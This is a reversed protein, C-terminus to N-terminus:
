KASRNKFKKWVRLPLLVIRIIKGIGKWQLVSWYPAFIWAPNSKPFLAQLLPLSRQCEPFDSPSKYGTVIQTLKAQSIDIIVNALEKSESINISGNKIELIVHGIDTCLALTGAWDKYESHALRHSLEPLLTYFLSHLNIIRLMRTDAKTICCEAGQEFCFKGFPSDPPITVVIRKNKRQRLKSVLLAMVKKAAVENQIAVDLVRLEDPGGYGPTSPALQVYAEIGNLHEIVLIEADKTRSRWEWWQNSRMIACNRGDNTKRWLNLVRQVDVEEILRFNCELQFQKAIKIPIHIRYNPICPAFGFKPYLEKLGHVIAMCQNSKEMWHISDEILARIYGRNRFNPHTGVIGIIWVPLLSIGITMQRSLVIACSVVRDDIELLMSYEPKYTPDENVIIEYLNKADRGDCGFTKEILDGVQKHEKDSRVGRIKM